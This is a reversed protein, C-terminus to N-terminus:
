RMLTDIAAKFQEEPMQEENLVNVLNYVEREALGDADYEGFKAFIEHGSEPAKKVFGEGLVLGIKGYDGFFYEQLLPIIKNQFVVKLDHLSNVNIFYSHGILHDKDLLKQIRQNITKLLSKLNIGKFEVIDKFVNKDKVEEHPLAELGIYAQKDLIHGDLLQLLNREQQIWLPDNWESDAHKEWLRWLMRHSDLLEEQPPMEIFSFRRRLATDLAEVSRDATNMTGIIHLNAPVGFKEKSYPLTVMLAEKKELRKDEEILTILEGFIQSVNGRNIEDIILVFNQSSKTVAYSYNYNVKLHNIIGNFYGEWGIFKPEGNIQKQINEKTLVGQKEKSPGTHLSLNGNSNLSVSFPKGTHTKLELLQGEKEALDKVLSEYAKTFDVQNPTKAANCVEKFIGPKVTYTVNGDLTEPKIGEIFDEYSMSQHFTTFVIQGTAVRRDFEIKLEERAKGEIAFGCVELAKNITNYTKGTGPPGYLVQNLPHKSNYDKARDKEPLPEPGVKKDDEAETTLKILFYPEFILKNADELEIKKIIICTSNDSPTWWKSPGKYKSKNKSFTIVEFERELWGEEGLNNIPTLVADGTVRGLLKIPNDNNGHTLYFYDGIQMRNKFMQGQTEISTAKAATDQHVLVKKQDICSQIDGLSFKGMSIKFVSADGIEIEELGKDLMRYLIDQALILYQKDPYADNPLLNAVTTLLENSPKIHNKIFDDVLQMYHIYKEGKPKAKQGILKCYKQYFSDKYFPYKDPNYFALFTAMTREDQHHAYKEEPVLERYLKLTESNFHKIRHELPLSENFLIRFCQRYQEPREKALHYVVALGVPYILNGYKINKIENYFDPADLNPCGKFQNVLKWKYVEDALQNEELYKKYKEILAKISDAM